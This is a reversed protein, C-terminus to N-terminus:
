DSDIAASSNGGRRKPRSQRTDEPAPNTFVPQSTDVVPLDKTSALNSTLIADMNYVLYGGIWIWMNRIQTGTFGIVWRMAECHPALVMFPSMVFGMVTLPTCMCPYINSAAYHLLIFMIYVIAGRTIISVAWQAFSKISEFMM